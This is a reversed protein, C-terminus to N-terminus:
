RDNRTGPSPDPSAITPWMALSRSLGEGLIAGDDPGALEAPQQRHGAALAVVQGRRQAVGPVVHRDPAKQRVALLLDVVVVDRQDAVDCGLLQEALEVRHLPGVAEAVAEQPDAHPTGLQQGIGRWHAVQDVPEPLGQLVPSSFM